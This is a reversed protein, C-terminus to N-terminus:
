EVTLYLQFDGVFANEAMLSQGIKIKYAGKQSLTYEFQQGFPGDSQGDPMIIQNFRINAPSKNVAIRGTLRANKVITLIYIAVDGPKNLRGKVSVSKAGPSFSIEKVSDSKSEWPEVSNGKKLTDPPQSQQNQFTDTTNKYPSKATRSNNTCSSISIATVLILAWFKISM